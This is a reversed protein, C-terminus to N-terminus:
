FTKVSKRIFFTMAIVWGLVSAAGAGIIPVPFNGKETVLYSVLFWVSYSAALIRERLLSSKLSFWAFPSILLFLAFFAVTLQISGQSYAMHLIREVHEVAPLPDPRIWAITTLVILCLSGGIRISKSKTKDLALILIAASAFATAQGADPQLIYVVALLGMIIPTWVKHGHVLAFLILPAFAMSVNLRLPGIPIWRHVSDMGPFFLSAGVLILISWAILNVRRLLIEVVKQSQFFLIAGLFIAAFNPLFASYAVGGASAIWAGALSAFLPMTILFYLYSM